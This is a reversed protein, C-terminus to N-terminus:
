LCLRRGRLHPPALLSLLARSERHGETLLMRPTRGPACAPDVSRRRPGRVDEGRRRHRGATFRPGRIQRYRCRKVMPVDSPHIVGSRM